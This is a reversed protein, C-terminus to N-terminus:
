SLNAEWEAGDIMKMVTGRIKERVDDARMSDKSAVQRDRSLVIQNAFNSSGAHERRDRICVEVADCHGFTSSESQVGATVFVMRLEEENRTASERTWKKLDIGSSRPPYTRLTVFIL